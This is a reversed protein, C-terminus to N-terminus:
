GDNSRHGFPPKGGGPGAQFYDFRWVEPDARATRQSMPHQLGIGDIPHKTRRIRQRDSDDLCGGIKPDAYWVVQQYDAVVVVVECGFTTDWDGGHTLRPTPHALQGDFQKKVFDALRGGVGVLRLNKVRM